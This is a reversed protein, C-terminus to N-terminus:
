FGHTALHLCHTMRPRMICLANVIRLHRFQRVKEPKKEALIKSVEQHLTDSHHALAHELFIVVQKVSSAPGATSLLAEALAEAVGATDLARRGFVFRAPLRSLPCM